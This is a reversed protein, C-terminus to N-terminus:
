VMGDFSTSGTKNISANHKPPAQPNELFCLPL